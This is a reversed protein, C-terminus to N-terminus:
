EVNYLEYLKNNPCFILMVYNRKDHRDVLYLYYNDTGNLYDLEVENDFKDKEDEYLSGYYNNIVSKIEEQNDVMIKKMNLSEIVKIRNDYNYVYFDHGERFEFKFVEKM